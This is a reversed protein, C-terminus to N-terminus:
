GATASLYYDEDAIGQAIADAASTNYDEYYNHYTSSSADYYSYVPSPSNNDDNNSSGSSTYSGSYTPKRYNPNPVEKKGDIYEDTYGYSVQGGASYIASAFSISDLFLNNSIDCVNITLQGTEFKTTSNRQLYFIGELKGNNDSYLPSTSGGLDSPYGTENVYKEGPDLYVSNREADDFADIEDQDTSVFATVDTGDCFFWHRTNPRLGQFTFRIFKPRCVPIPDFGLDVERTKVNDVWITKPTSSGVNIASSSTSNKPSSSKKNSSSNSAMSAVAVAAIFWFM